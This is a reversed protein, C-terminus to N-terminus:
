HDVATGKDFEEFYDCEPCEWEIVEIPKTEATGPITQLRTHPKLRMNEGCM